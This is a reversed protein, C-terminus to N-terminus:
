QNVAPDIVGKFEVDYDLYFTGVFSNASVSTGQGFGILQVSVAGFALDAATNIHAVVNAAAGVFPYVNGPVCLDTSVKKWASDVPVPISAERVITSSVDFTKTNAGSVFVEQTILQVDAPDTYAAM